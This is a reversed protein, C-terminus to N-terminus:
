NQPFEIVTPSIGQALEEFIRFKIMDPVVKICDLIGSNGTETLQKVAPSKQAVLELAQKRQEQDIVFFAKGTIEVERSENIDAVSQYILLAIAPSNTIQDTKPLGKMTTLYTDFNKDVAYHMMRIRPSNGDLTAVAGVDVNELVSMIEEKDHQKSM